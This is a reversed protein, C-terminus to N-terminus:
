DGTLDTSITIKFGDPDVLSFDRAGWPQDTPPSALVGGRAQIDSALRDVDQATTCFLRCGVGKVRDRGQAWDDQGLMISVAGAELSAAVVRGDHEHRECLVCGMVDTYWSISAEIDAVTMSPMVQRLRLTEPERREITAKETM